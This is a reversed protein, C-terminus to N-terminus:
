IITINIFIIVYIASLLLQSVVKIVKILQSGLEYENIKSTNFLSFDILEYKGFTNKIAIGLETQIIM